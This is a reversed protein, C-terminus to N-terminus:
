FILLRFTNLSARIARPSVEVTFVGEVLMGWALGIVSKIKQPIAMQYKGTNTFTNWVSSAELLLSPLTRALSSM